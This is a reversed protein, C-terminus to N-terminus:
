IIFVCRDFTKLKNVIFQALNLPDNSYSEWDSLLFFGSHGYKRGSSTYTRAEFQIRDSLCVFIFQSENTLYPQRVLDPVYSVLKHKLYRIKNSKIYNKTINNFEKNALSMNCMSPYDLESFILYLVDYYLQLM